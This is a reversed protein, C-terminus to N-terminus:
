IYNIIPKKIYMKINNRNGKPSYHLKKSLNNCYNVCVHVQYAYPSHIKTRTSAIRYIGGGEVQSYGGIYPIHRGSVDNLFFHQNVFIVLPLNLLRLSVSFYSLCIYYHINPYICLWVYTNVRLILRLSTTENVM